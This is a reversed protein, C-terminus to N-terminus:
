KDNAERLKRIEALKSDIIACCDVYVAPLAYYQEPTAIRKLGDCASYVRLAEYSLPTFYGSPCIGYLMVARYAPLWDMGKVRKVTDTFADVTDLSVDLTPLDPAEAHIV